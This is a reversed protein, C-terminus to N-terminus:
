RRRYAMRKKFLNETYGGEEVFKRELSEKQKDLLYGTKITLDILYNLPYSPDSPKSPTSPLKYEGTERKVKKVREVMEQFRPDGKDWVAINRLRAFDKYDEILEEISGRSIGVMKLYNKFSTGQTAGEALCQKASRAAGIMQEKLKWSKVWRECFEVTLDHIEECQKYTLLNKYGPV